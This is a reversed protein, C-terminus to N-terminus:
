RLERVLSEQVEEEVPRDYAVFRRIVKKAAADV